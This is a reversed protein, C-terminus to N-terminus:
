ECDTKSKPTKLYFQSLFNNASQHRDTRIGTHFLEVGLYWLQKPSDLLCYWSGGDSAWTWFTHIYIGAVGIYRQPM